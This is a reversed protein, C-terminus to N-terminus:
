ASRLAPTGAATGAGPSGITERSTASLALLPLELQEVFGADLALAQVLREQAPGM